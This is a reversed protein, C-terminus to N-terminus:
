WYKQPSCAEAVLQGEVAGRQGAPALAQALLLERRQELLAQRHRVLGARELGLIQLAHGHVGRHLGLRDGMRGVGPQHVPRDLLQHRQGLALAHRQALAIQPTALRAAMM